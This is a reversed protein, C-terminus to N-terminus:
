GDLARFVPYIKKDQFEIWIFDPGFAYRLVGRSAKSSKYTRWPLNNSDLIDAFSNEMTIM